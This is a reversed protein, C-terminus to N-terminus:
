KRERPLRSRQPATWQCRDECKNSWDTDCCGIERLDMKINDESKRRSSRMKRTGQPTGVLIKYSSNKGMSEAHGGWRM